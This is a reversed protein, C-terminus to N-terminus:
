PISFAAVYTLPCNAATSLADHSAATAATSQGVMINIFSENADTIDSSTGGYNFAFPATDLQIMWADAKSATVQGVVATSIFHKWAGEVTSPVPATSGATVTYNGGAWGPDTSQNCYAVDVQAYYAASSVAPMVIMLAIEDGPHEIPIRIVTDQATAMRFGPIEYDSSVLRGATSVKVLKNWPAHNPSINTSVAM